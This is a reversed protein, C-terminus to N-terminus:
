RHHHHGRSPRRVLVQAQTTAGGAASVLLRASLRHHSAGNLASLGARTMPVAITASHGAALAYAGRALVITRARLFTRHHGRRRVPITVRVKLTITGACTARACTLPVRATRGSVTITSSLLIVEPKPPPPPPPPPPAPVLLAASTASAKGHTNTATVRCSLRSGLDAVGVVYTNAGAGSIPAGNRSWAYAFSLPPSGTWSGKACTLTRGLAPTGSITPASTNVPAARVLDANVGTTVHEVKVSVESQTQTMYESLGAFPFAEFTVNYSGSALGRITYQGQANTEALGGFFEPGLANSASVEIGELPAHTAADTVTGSIEGGVQLEADIASQTKGEEVTVTNATALSDQDNYFQPVLNLANGPYFEVTYSGAPLGVATYEGSAGTNASKGVFEGGATSLVFVEVGRVAVHSTNTVMGSVKGGERLQADIGAATGGESLALESAETFTRKNNYYQQAFVSENAPIFEVKYSGAALNEVRYEGSANTTASGAFARTAATLVFVEVGKVGTTPHAAETVQGEIRASGAASAVSAGSLSLACALLAALMLRGLWM